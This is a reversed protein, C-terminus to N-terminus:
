LDGFLDINCKVLSDLPPRAGGQSGPKSAWHVLFLLTPSYMHRFTVLAKIHARSELEIRKDSEAECSRWFRPSIKQVEKM